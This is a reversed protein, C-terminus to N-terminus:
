LRMGGEALQSQAWTFAYKGAQPALRQGQKKDSATDTDAWGLQSGLTKPTPSPASTPGLSSLWPVDSPYSQM